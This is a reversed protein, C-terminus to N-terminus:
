QMKVSGKPDLTEVLFGKWCLNFCIIIYKPPGDITMLLNRPIVAQDESTSRPPVFFVFFFRWVQNGQHFQNPVLSQFSKPYYPRSDLVSDDDDSSFLALTLLFDVYFYYFFLNGAVAILLFDGFPPISLASQLRHVHALMRHNSNYDDNGDHEDDDDDDVCLFSLRIGDDFFWLSDEYSFQFNRKM